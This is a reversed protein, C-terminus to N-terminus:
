KVNEKKNETELRGIFRDIHQKERILDALTSVDLQQTVLMRYMVNEIYRSETKSWEISKEYDIDYILVAGM